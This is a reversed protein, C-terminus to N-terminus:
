RLNVTAGGMDETVETVVTGSPGTSSDAVTTIRTGAPIKVARSEGAALSIQDDGSKLAIPAKTTNQLTFKVTKGKKATQATPAPAAQAFASFSPVLLCLAAAAPLVVSKM